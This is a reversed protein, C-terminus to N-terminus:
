TEPKLKEAKETRYWNYEFRTGLGKAERKQYDPVENVAFDFTVNEKRYCGTLLRELYRGGMVAKRVLANRSRGYKFKIAESEEAMKESFSLNGGAVGFVSLYDDIHGFRVGADLLKLVLEADASYRYSADLRLLDSERLHSRYFLTCSLAYLFGNTVYAKRLPIERRAALPRGDGDVIIANGFVADVEPHRDFYEAVKALTGPLYQEDCNLWSYIDGEKGREWAKNIADYM